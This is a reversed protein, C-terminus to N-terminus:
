EKTQGKPFKCRGNHPEFFNAFPLLVPLAGQLSPIVRNDIDTMLKHDDFRTGDSPMTKPWAVTDNKVYPAIVCHSSHFAPLMAMSPPSGSKWYHGCTRSCTEHVRTFEASLLSMAVAIWRKAGARGLCRALANVLILLHLFKENKVNTSTSSTRNSIAALCLLSM